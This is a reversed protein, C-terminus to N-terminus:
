TKNQHNDLPSASAHAAISNAIQARWKRTRKRTPNKSKEEHLGHECIV